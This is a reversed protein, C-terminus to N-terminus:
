ALHGESPGALYRALDAPTDVDASEGPLEPVEVVSLGALVSRLSRGEPEAPLAARLAAARWVSILWQRHGSADSLVAGDAGAALAARLRDVTHATVGTLDAALLAIQDPEGPLATLGAALAALPGGGRPQEMTWLVQGCVPRTPGVVVIADAGRVADLARDLLTRGAVSIGPKHRGGLRSGRGGALLVASWM